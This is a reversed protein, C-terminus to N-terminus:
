VPARARARGASVVNGKEEYLAIAQETIRRADDARGVLGLVEGVDLLVDARDNLLDTPEMLAAAERAIREAAELEGEAALLRARVGRWMAQTGVDEAAANGESVSCLESAEAPRGQALVAHALVAATTGYYAREGMRELTEFGPRLLAEAVDPCGALLEVASPLAIKASSPRM